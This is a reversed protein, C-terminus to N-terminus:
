TLIKVQCRINNTNAPLSSYETRMQESALYSKVRWMELSHHTSGETAVTIVLQQERCARVHQGAVVAHPTGENWVRVEGVFLEWRIDVWGCQCAFRQGTLGGGHGAIRGENVAVVWLGEAIVAVGGGERRRSAGEQRRRSEWGQQWVIASLRRM